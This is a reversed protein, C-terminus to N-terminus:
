RGAADLQSRLEFPLLDMALVAHNADSFHLGLANVLALFNFLMGPSLSRIEDEDAAALCKEMQKRTGSEDQNRALAIALSVRRDWPMFRDGGLALRNEIAELVSKQRAADSRAASIHARATLAGLDSPFKRLEV